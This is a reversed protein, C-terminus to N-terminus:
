VTASCSLCADETVEQNYEMAARVVVGFESRQYPKLLLPADVLPMSREALADAPYGSCYIVKIQPLLQRVNQALEVGNMGGPMIIDTVILYNDKHQEVVELASAGDEASYVTYGMEELYASAIELLDLEDDVVLVKGTLRAPSLTAAAVPLSLSPANALPLYFTVTTGYGLESYIRITGGSQKVFGYVMAPGLGTGKGRPKTFFPEFVRELTEKSMGHGTDSISICAYRGVKLEGAQDPPYDEELNSLQTSITLTGGKPMADRANVALNLLASELGSPDVLVLPMSDDFHTTIKVDPGLARALEITNHICPHLEIPTPKLEVNTSFALLRRTLDAGRAAAKQATQVRKLGAENKHVLRELLDLNGVIVGLLNNFDHAIGGTLQGIAEMKQSLYLQSELQKRDTIKRAIM